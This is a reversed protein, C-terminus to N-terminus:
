EWDRVDLIAPVIQPLVTWRIWRGDIMSACTFQYMGESAAERLFELGDKIYILLQKDEILGFYKTAVDKMDPDLEVATIVAKPVVKRLYSCLSGGGLGIVLIQTLKKVSIAGVCMFSHHTCCLSTTDVIVREHGRRTKVSIVFFKCDWISFM